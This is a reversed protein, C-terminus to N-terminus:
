ASSSRRAAPPLAASPWPWPSSPYWSPPPPPRGAAFQLPQNRRDVWRTAM